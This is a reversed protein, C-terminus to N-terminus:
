KLGSFLRSIGPKALYDRIAQVGEKSRETAATQENSQRLVNAFNMLMKEQMMAIQKELMQVSEDSKEIKDNMGAVTNGAQIVAAEMAVMKGSMDTIKSDMAMVSDLKSPNSLIEEYLRIREELKKMEEELLVVDTNTLRYLQLNVIAEAQTNTFEYEKVLNAIADAKNKYVHRHRTKTIDRYDVIWGNDTKKIGM